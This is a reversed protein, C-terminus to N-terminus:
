LTEIVEGKNIWIQDKVELVYAVGGCVLYSIQALEEEHSITYVLYIDCVYM